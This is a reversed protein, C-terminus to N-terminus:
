VVPVLGPALDRDRVVLYRPRPPVIVVLLSQRQHALVLHDVDFIEVDRPPHHADASYSRRRMRAGARRIATASETTPTGPM